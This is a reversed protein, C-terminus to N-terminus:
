ELKRNKLQKHSRGHRPCHREKIVLAHCGVHRERAPTNKDEFPVHRILNLLHFLNAAAVPASTMREPTENAWDPEVSSDL